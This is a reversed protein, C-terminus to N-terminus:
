EVMLTSGPEVRGTKVVELFGALAGYIANKGRYGSIGLDEMSRGDLQLNHEAAYEASERKQRYLSNGKLQEPRSFRIYSYAKGNPKVTTKQGKSSKM